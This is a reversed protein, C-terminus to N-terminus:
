DYAFVTGNLGEMASMAVNKVCRNYLEKNDSGVIV